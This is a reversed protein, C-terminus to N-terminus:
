LESNESGESPGAGALGGPSLARALSAFLDSVAM